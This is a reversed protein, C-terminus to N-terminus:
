VDGEHYIFKLQKKRPPLAGRRRSQERPRNPPTLPGAGGNRKSALWDALRSVPHLM